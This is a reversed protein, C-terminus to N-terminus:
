YHFHKMQPRYLYGYAFGRLLETNPFESKNKWQNPLFVVDWTAWELARTPHTVKMITYCRKGGFRRVKSIHSSFREADGKSLFTAVVNPQISQIPFSKLGTGRLSKM